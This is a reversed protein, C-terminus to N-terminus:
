LPCSTYVPADRQALELPGVWDERVFFTRKRCLYKM